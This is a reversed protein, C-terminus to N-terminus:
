AKQWRTDDRPVTWEEPLLWGTPWRALIERPSFPRGADSVTVVRDLLHRELRREDFCYAWLHVRDGAPDTFWRIDVPAVSHLSIMEDRQRRYGLRVVRCDIIAAVLADTIPNRTSM